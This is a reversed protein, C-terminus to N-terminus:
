KGMKGKERVLGGPKLKDCVETYRVAGDNKKGKMDETRNTGKQKPDRGTMPIRDNKM